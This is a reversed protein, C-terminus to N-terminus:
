KVPETDVKIGIWFCNRQIGSGPRVEIGQVDSHEDEFDDEHVLCLNPMKFTRQRYAAAANLVRNPFSNGSRDYWLLGEVMIKPM